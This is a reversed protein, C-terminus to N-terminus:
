NLELCRERPTDMYIELYRIQHLAAYQRYPKRLSKLYFDDEVILIDCLDKFRDINSKM